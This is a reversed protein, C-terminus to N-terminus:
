LKMNNSLLLANQTKIFKQKNSITNSTTVRKNATQKENTYNLKLFRKHIEESNQPIRVVINRM